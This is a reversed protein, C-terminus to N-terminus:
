KGEVRAESVRAVVPERQPPRQEPTPRQQPVEPVPRASAEAPALDRLTLEFKWFGGGDALLQSKQKPPDVAWGLDKLQDNLEQSLESLREPGTAVGHLKLEAGNGEIQRLVWDQPAERSLQRLLEALRTRQDALVKECLEVDSRHKAVDPRLKKLETELSEAKKRLEDRQKGPAEALQQEAKATEIQRAAWTAHGYCLTGVVLAIGAAIMMLHKRELPRAAIKVVPVGVSRASLAQRWQGLWQTLSQEDTLSITPWLNPVLDPEDSILLEDHEFEDVGLQSTDAQWAEIIEDRARASGPAVDVLQRLLRGGGYAVRVAAGPWFEIRRWSRPSGGAGVPRPLGGPHLIGLLKGGLRRIEEEYQDRALSTAATLWFRREPGPQEVPQVAAAADFASIGSLPEAEFTLMGALEDQSLGNAASASLDLTHTWCDTSLIYVRGLKPGGATVLAGILVAPDDSEPRRRQVLNKPGFQRGAFDARVLKDRGIVLLTITSSSAM